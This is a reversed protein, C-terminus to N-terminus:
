QLAARRGGRVRLLPRAMALADALFHSRGSATNAAPQGRGGDALQKLLLLSKFSAIARGGVDQAEIKQWAALVWHPGDCGPPVDAISSVVDITNGDHSIATGDSIAAKVHRTVSADVEARAGTLAGLKM